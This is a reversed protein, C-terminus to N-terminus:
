GGRPGTTRERFDAVSATAYLTGGGAIVTGPQFEHTIGGELKWGSIDVAFENPNTLEIYEEDQNGSEPDFDLSGFNIQPQEPQEDPIVVSYGPIRNSYTVYLERRRDEISNLLSNKGATASAGVHPDIDPFISNVYEAFWTTGGSRGGYFEDMLTRLRRLFMEQVEETELCRKTSSTGSIPGMRRLSHKCAGSHINPGNHIKTTTGASSTSHGIWIGPIFEGCVMVKSTM